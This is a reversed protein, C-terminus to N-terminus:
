TGISAQDANVATWGDQELSDVELIFVRLAREVRHWDQYCVRRVAESNQETRVEWGATTRQISYHRVYDAKQITKAFM